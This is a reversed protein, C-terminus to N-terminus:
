VILLSYEATIVKIKPAEDDFSDASVIPLAVEETAHSPSQWMPRTPDPILLATDSKTGADM